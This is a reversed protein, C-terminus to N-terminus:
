RRRSSGCTRSCRRRPRWRSCSASRTPPAAARSCSCPRRGHLDVLRRGLARQLAGAHRAEQQLRRVAPLLLRRLGLRRARPRRRDDLRRGLDDAHLHVRACHARLPLEAAGGYVTFTEKVADVFGGLGTIKDGPPRAPDRAGPDRLPPRRPHRSRLVSVPVDRQPNVMEEAAGNQLEFGVYNFLILPSSASSSRSRRSVHRRGRLGAVGNKIAYIVLTFTFFGLVLIAPSRAPTRSGSARRSRAIAVGISFWIFLLKFIYDGATGLHDVDLAPLDTREGPPARSSRSRAASGSRTRRGTSSRRSAPRSARRVVAQGVRLPRRGRHVLQRGRVHDAHVPRRLAGRAPRALLLGAARVLRRRRAHRARRARLAHLLGHRLAAAVEEAEGERELALETTHELAVDATTM